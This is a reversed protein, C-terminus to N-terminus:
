RGFRPGQDIWEVYDDPLRGPLETSGPTGPAPPQRWACVHAAPRPVSLHTRATRVSDHRCAVNLDPSLGAVLRDREKRRSSRPLRDLPFNETRPPGSPSLYPCVRWSTQKARRRYLVTCYLVAFRARPTAKRTPLRGAACCRTLWDGNNGSVIVVRRRRGGLSSDHHAVYSHCLEDLFWSRSPFEGNNGSVM